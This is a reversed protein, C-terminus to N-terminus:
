LYKHNARFFFKEDVEVRNAEEEEQARYTKIIIIIIVFFM